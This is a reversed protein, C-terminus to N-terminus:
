SQEKRRFKRDTGREFVSSPEGTEEMADRLRTWPGTPNDDGKPEEVIEADIVEEAELQLPAVQTNERTISLVTGQGSMLQEASSTISLRPFKFRKTVKGTKSMGEAISLRGEVLGQAQLQVILQEITPMERAANWSQTEIRWGGGFRIEPLVVMMRTRPKCLMQQKADCICAAQVPDGNDDHLEVMEGDCRRELGAFGWHEYYQSIADPPLWVRISSTKTIVEWQNRITAKPENWERAEGGYLAALERIAVEDPSTFRFTDLAKAAKATKVGIRIRGQEQLRVPLQAIPIIKKV